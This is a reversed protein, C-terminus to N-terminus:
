PAFSDFDDLSISRFALYLPLLILTLLLAPVWGSRSRSPRTDDTHTTVM